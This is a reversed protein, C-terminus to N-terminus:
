INGTSLNEGKEIEFNKLRLNLSAPASLSIEVDDYAAYKPFSQTIIVNNPLVSEKQIVKYAVVLNDGVEVNQFEVSKMQLLPIIPAPLVSNAAAGIRGQPNSQVADIHSGNNKLTYANLIEIDRNNASKGLAFNPMGIPMQQSLQVGQETLVTITLENLETYTKDANVEYHVHYQKFKTPNIFSAAKSEDATAQLPFISLIFVILAISNLTSRCASSQKKSHM